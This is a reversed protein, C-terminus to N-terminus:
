VAHMEELVQEYSMNEGYRRKLKRAITMWEASNPHTIDFFGHEAAFVAKAALTVGITASRNSAFLNLYHKKDRM